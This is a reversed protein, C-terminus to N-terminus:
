LLRNRRGGPLAIPITEAAFGRVAIKDALQQLGGISM